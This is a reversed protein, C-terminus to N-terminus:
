PGEESGATMEYLGTVMDIFGETVEVGRRPMVERCTDIFDGLPGPRFITGDMYWAFPPVHFPTLSGAHVLMAGPGISTGTNILTGISTKVFDGIFCGLKKEGTRKRSKPTYVKVRSYDNKLDSNSTLAGLNVWEGIYSHGIFGDHYKNVYGHFISQEVEGGVRCEDGLSTGSRIKGGLIRCRAGIACPGEIRTFADVRSWPGIFVPGSTADIVVHPEIRTGEGIYVQSGEGLITVGAAADGNGRIGALDWDLAIREGNRVVLEWIFGARLADGTEITGARTLGLEGLSAFIGDVPRPVRAADIRAAVPIDGLFLASNPGLNELREDPYLLANVLLVEGGGELLSLDNIALHPYRERCYPVLRERTFYCLDGRPLNGVSGAFLEMRERFTFLGSRLEWLPRTLSLPYFGDHLGDEFVVINM